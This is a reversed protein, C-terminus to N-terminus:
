FELYFYRSMSYYMPFLALLAIAILGLVPGRWRKGIGYTAALAVVLYLINVMAAVDPDRGFLRYMISASAPFLPTRVPDGVVVTFLSKISPQSLLQDYYLSRALHRPKDWGTSTVNDTLWLWNTIAYFLVIAGILLWPALRSLWRARQPLARNHTTQQDTPETM